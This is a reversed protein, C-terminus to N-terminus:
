TWGGWILMKAFSFEPYFVLFVALALGIGVFVKTLLGPYVDEDSGNSDPTEVVDTQLKTDAPLVPSPAVESLSEDTTCKNLLGPPERTDDMPVSEAVM